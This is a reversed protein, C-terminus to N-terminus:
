SAGGNATLVGLKGGQGDIGIDEGRVVFFRLPKAREPLASAVHVRAGGLSRPDQCQLACTRDFAIACKRCLALVTVYKPDSGPADSPRALFAPTGDQSTGFRYTSQIGRLVPGTFRHELTLHACGAIPTADKTPANM